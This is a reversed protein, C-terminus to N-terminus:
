VFHNCPCLHLLLLVSTGIKIQPYSYHVQAPAALEKQSLAKPNNLSDCDTRLGSDKAVSTQADKDELVRESVENKESDSNSAQVKQKMKTTCEDIVNISTVTSTNIERSDCADDRNNDKM